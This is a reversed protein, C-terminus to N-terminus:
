GIHVLYHDLLSEGPHILLKAFFRETGAPFGQLFVGSRGFASQPPIFIRNLRPLPPCFMLLISLLTKYFPCCAFNNVLSACRALVGSPSNIRFYIQDLLASASYIRSLRAFHLSHFIRTCCIAPLFFLLLFISLSVSYFPSLPVINTQALFLFVIGSFSAHFYFLGCLKCPIHSLSGNGLLYIDSLFFADRLLRLNKLYARRRFNSTWVYFLNFLCRYSFVTKERDDLINFFSQLFM